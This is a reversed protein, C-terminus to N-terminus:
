MRLCVSGSLVPQLTKLSPNQAHSERLIRATQKQVEAITHELPNLEILKKEIVPLRTRLYPFQRETELITKRIYQDAVSETRAKGQKTFPTM